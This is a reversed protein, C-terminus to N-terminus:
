MMGTSAAMAGFGKAEQKVQEGIAPVDRAVKRSKVKDTEKLGNVFAITHAPESKDIGLEYNLGYGKAMLEMIRVTPGALLIAFDPTWKGASIGSTLFFDALKVLPVGSQMLTLLGNATEPNTLKKTIMEVGQDLDTVEPPRHWPYNKTDATMNEGPIPGDPILPNAPM